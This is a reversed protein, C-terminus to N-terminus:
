PGPSCAHPVCMLAGVYAYASMCSVERRSVHLLSGRGEHSCRCLSMEFDDLDHDERVIKVGSRQEVERACKNRCLM